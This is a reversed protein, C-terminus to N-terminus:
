ENREHRQTDNPILFRSGWPQRCIAALQFSV